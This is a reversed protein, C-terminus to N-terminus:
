FCKFVMFIGNAESEGHLPSNKIPVQGQRPESALQGQFASDVSRLGPLLHRHGLWM